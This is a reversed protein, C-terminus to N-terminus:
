RVLLWRASAQLEISQLRVFYVGSTVAASSGDRGDWLYVHAGPPLTGLDQLRVLRGATDYIELHIPSPGISQFSLHTGTTMPNPSARLAAETGEPLTEIGTSWELRAIRNAPTYGAQALNVGVYVDPGDHIFGTQELTTCM